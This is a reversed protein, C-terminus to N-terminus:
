LTYTRLSVKNDGEILVADIQLYNETTSLISENSENCYKGKGIFSSDEYLGNKL